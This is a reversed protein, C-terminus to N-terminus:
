SGGSPVSWQYTNNTNWPVFFTVDSNECVSVCSEEPPNSGPPSFFSSLDILNCDPKPCKVTIEVQTPESFPVDPNNPNALYYELIHVGCCPESTPDLPTWRVFGLEDIQLCNDSSIEMVLINLGEEISDNSLVNDTITQGEQYCYTDPNAIAQSFSQNSLLLTCSIIAWIFPRLAKAPLM